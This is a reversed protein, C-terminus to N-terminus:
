QEDGHQGAVDAGRQLVMEDVAVVDQVEVYDGVQWRQSAGVREPVTETRILEAVEGSKKDLQWVVTGSGRSRLRLNRLLGADTSTRVPYLDLDM